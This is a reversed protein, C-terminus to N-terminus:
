LEDLEDTTEQPGAYFLTANDSRLVEIARLKFLLVKDKSRRIYWVKGKKVGHVSGVAFERVSNGDASLLLALSDAVCVKDDNQQYCVANLVVRSGSLIDWVVPPFEAGFLSSAITAWPAYEWKGEAFVATKNGTLIVTAVATDFPGTIDMRWKDATHFLDFSGRVKGHYRENNIWLTIDGDAHYSSPADGLVCTCPMGKRSSDVSLRGVPFSSCSVFFLLGISMWLRFISRM